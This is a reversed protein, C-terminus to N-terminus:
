GTRVMITRSVMNLDNDDAHRGIFKSRYFRRQGLPAIYAQEGEIGNALECGIKGTLGGVQNEQPRASILGELLAQFPNPAVPGLAEAGDTGCGGLCLYCGSRVARHEEDIGRFVVEVGDNVTSQLAAAGAPMGRLPGPQDNGHDEPRSIGAPIPLM